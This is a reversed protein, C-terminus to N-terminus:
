FIIRYVLKRDNKFKMVILPNDSGVYILMDANKCMEDMCKEYDNYIVVDDAKEHIDFYRKRWDPAWKIAQNEHPMYISLTIEQMFIKQTLVVEAGWMPIGYECDTIFNTIGNLALQSVIEAIKLKIMMCLEDEEDYGFPLKEVHTGYILCTKSM